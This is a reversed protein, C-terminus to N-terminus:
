APSQYKLEIKRTQVWNTGSQVEYVYQILRGQADYKHICREVAAPSKRLRESLRGQADYKFEINALAEGTSSTFRISQIKNDKLELVFADQTDSSKEVGRITNPAYRFAHSLVQNGKEDMYSISQLQGKHYSRVESSLLKDDKGLLKQVVPNGAEYEYVNKGQRDGQANYFVEEILRGRADYKLTAKETLNDKGDYALITDPGTLGDRMIYPALPSWRAPNYKVSAETNAGAPIGHLTILATLMVITRPLTKM